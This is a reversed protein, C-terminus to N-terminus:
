ICIYNPAHIEVGYNEVDNDIKSWQADWIYNEDIVPKEDVIYAGSDVSGVEKTRDYHASLM